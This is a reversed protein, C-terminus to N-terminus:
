AALTKASLARYAATSDPHIEFLTDYHAIQFIEQLLPSLGCVAIVGGPTLQQWALGLSRLGRSSLRRVNRLDLILAGDGRVCRVEEVLWHAFPEWNHHDVERERVCVMLIHGARAQEITGAGFAAVQPPLGAPARRPQFSREVALGSDAPVDRQKRPSPESHTLPERTPM